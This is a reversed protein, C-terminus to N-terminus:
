PLYAEGGVAIIDEESLTRNWHSYFTQRERPLGIEQRLMKHIIRFAKHECGGWFFATGLDAPWSVSRLADALLSTTGPPAGNRHLWHVKMGAPRRLPQEEDCNDIEILAVGSAEPGLQELIRAIGPLATEDGALVYFDAAKAGDAAPGLIGVMDGRAAEQAWRTAPGPTEHLSFDIELWGEEADIKRITYVRTPLKEQKPWVVQGRDDLFPWLPSLVGKPQFILRCHLQDPRDYRDLNEGRFRVRRMRPTVEGVTEVRLVRLDDPRSPGTADGSWEITLNESAAIFSIPGILAYKMRNLAERDSTEVKLHLRGDGPSLWGRGYPATVAYGDETRDIELDHTAVSALIPDLFDAIKPFDVTAAAKYPPESTM